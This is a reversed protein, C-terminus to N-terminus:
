IKADNHVVNFCAKYGLDKYLSETTYKNYIKMRYLNESHDIPAIKGNM